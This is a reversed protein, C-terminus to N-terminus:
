KKVEIHDVPGVHIHEKKYNRNPHIEPGRHKM